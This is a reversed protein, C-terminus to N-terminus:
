VNTSWFNKFGVFLIIGGVQFSKLFIEFKHELDSYNFHQFRLHGDHVAPCRDFVILVFVM